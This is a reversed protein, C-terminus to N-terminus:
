TIQGVVIGINDEGGALNAAEILRQCAQKPNEAQEIINIIREGSRVMEWLGDSCLLFHDGQQLNRFYIDVEEFEQQGVYRFIINRHPHTYVEDPLIQGTAVLRAVLSHDKTVQILNHNRILYTRCDGVNAIIAQDDYVIMMSVTTGANAAQNPNHQAYEYVVRNATKVAARVLSEIDSLNAENVKLNIKNLTSREEKTLLSTKRPDESFFLEAFVRKIAETAWYSAYKGGMHGGMGDCISFLGIPKKDNTYHVEAWATDENVERLLGRDTQASAVLKLM